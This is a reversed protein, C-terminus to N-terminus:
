DIYHPLGLQYPLAKSFCWYDLLRHTLELRVRAALQRLMRSMFPSFGMSHFTTPLTNWQRLLTHREDADFSGNRLLREFAGFSPSRLTRFVEAKIHLIIGSPEPVLRSFQPYRLTHPEVGGEEALARLRADYM